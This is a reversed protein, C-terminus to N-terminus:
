NREFDVARSLVSGSEFHALIAYESRIRMVRTVSGNVLKPLVKGAKFIFDHKPELDAGPGRGASWGPIGSTLYGRVM